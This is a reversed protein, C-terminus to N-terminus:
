QFKFIISRAKALPLYEEAPNFHLREDDYVDVFDDRRYALVRFGCGYPPGSFYQLELANYIIDPRKEFNMLALKTMPVVEIKFPIFVEEM